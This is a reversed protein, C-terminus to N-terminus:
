LLMLRPLLHLHVQKIIMRITGILFPLFFPFFHYRGVPVWDDLVLVCLSHSSPFTNNITTDYGILYQLRNNHRAWSYVVAIAAATSLSSSPTRTNNTNDNM